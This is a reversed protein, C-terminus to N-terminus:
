RTQYPKSLRWAEYAVIGVWLLDLPQAIAFLLDISAFPLLALPIEELGQESAMDNFIMWATLVRSVAFFGLSLAITMIQLAQSRKPGIAMAQARVGLWPIAIAVLAIDWGSLAVSAAYIAAGALSGAGNAALALPYNINSSLEDIQRQVEARLADYCPMCLEGADVQMSPDGALIPQQCQACPRESM